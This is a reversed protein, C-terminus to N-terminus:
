FNLQQQGLVAIAHAFFHDHIITKIGSNGIGTTHKDDPINIILVSLRAVCIEKGLCKGRFFRNGACCNRGYRSEVFLKPCVCLFTGQKIKVLQVVIQTFNEAETFLLWDQNKRFNIQWINQYICKKHNIKRGSKDSYLQVNM